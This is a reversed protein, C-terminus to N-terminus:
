TELKRKYVHSVKISKFRGDRGFGAHDPNFRGGIRHQFNDIERSDDLNGFFM